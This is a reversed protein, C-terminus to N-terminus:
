RLEVEIRRCDRLVDDDLECEYVGRQWQGPEHEYKYLFKVRDESSDVGEIRREFNPTGRVVIEARATTEVEDYEPDGYQDQGTQEYNVLTVNEGAFELLKEAPGRTYDAIDM